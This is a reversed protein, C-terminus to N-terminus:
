RAVNICDKKTKIYNYKMDIFFAYFSYILLFIPGVPPLLRYDLIIIKEPTLTVMTVLTSIYLELTPCGLDLVEM